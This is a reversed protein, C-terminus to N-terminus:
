KAKTAPVAKESLRVKVIREMMPEQRVADVAHDWSRKGKVTVFGAGPTLIEVVPKIGLGLCRSNVLSFGDKWLGEGKGLSLVPLRRNSAADVFWVSYTLKALAALLGRPQPTSLGAQDLDVVEPLSGPERPTMPLEPPTPLQQIASIYFKSATGREFDTAKELSNPLKRIVDKNFAAPRIEFTPEKLRKAPPQSVASGRRKRDGSATPAPAPVPSPPPAPSPAPAPAPAPTSTAAQMAQRSLPRSIDSGGPEMALVTPQMPQETSPGPSAAAMSGEREFDAPTIAPRFEYDVWEPVQEEPSTAVNKAATQVVRERRRYGKQKSRRINRYVFIVFDCILKSSEDPWLPSADSASGFYEEGRGDSRLFDLALIVCLYKKYDKEECNNMRTVRPAHEPTELFTSLDRNLAKTTKQDGLRLRAELEPASVNSSLKIWKVIAKPDHEPRDVRPPMQPLEPYLFPRAPSQPEHTTDLSLAPASLTTLHQRINPPDHSNSDVQQADFGLDLGFSPTPDFDLDLGFNLNPDFDHGFGFSPDFDLSPNLDLGLDLGLSPDLDLGLDLGLSPILDLDLDIGLDLNPDLEAAPGAILHMSGLPLEPNLSGDIDDPCAQDDRAPGSESTAFDVLPEQPLGLEIGDLQAELLRTIELDDVGFQSHDGFQLEDQTSVDSQGPAHAGGPLLPAFTFQPEPNQSPGPAPAPPLSLATTHSPPAPMPLALSPPEQRPQSIERSPCPLSPFTLITPAASPPTTPLTASETSTFISEPDDGLDGDGFLSTFDGDFGAGDGDSGGFLSDSDGDGRSEVAQHDSLSM